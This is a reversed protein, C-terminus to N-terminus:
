ISVFDDMGCLATQCSNGILGLVEKIVDCGFLKKLEEAAALYTSANDSLMVSPISRSSAFQRFALLFTEASLDTVTELHTARTSACTLLCIYM